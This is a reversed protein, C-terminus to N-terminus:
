RQAPGEDISHRWLLNQSAFPTSNNEYDWIETRVYSRRQDAFLPAEGALLTTAFYGRDEQGLALPNPGFITASALQAATPPALAQTKQNPQCCGSLVLLALGLAAGMTCKSKM